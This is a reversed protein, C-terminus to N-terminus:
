AGGHVSLDGHRTVRSVVLGPPDPVGVDVTAGGHDRPARRAGVDDGGHAQSAVSSEVDRDATARVACRAQGGGVTTNHDVQAGQLIHSDIRLSPPHPDPAAREQAVDVRRREGVPKRCRESQDTVGPHAPQGQAPAHTPEGALEPQAHVVQHGRLDDGGVSPHQAGRWVGMGVQEPCQAAATAVEADDRLELEPQM